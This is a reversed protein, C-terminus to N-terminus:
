VSWYGEKEQHGEREKLLSPISLLLSCASLAKGDVQPPRQQRDTTFSQGKQATDELWVAGRSLSRWHSTVKSESCCLPFPVRHTGLFESCMPVTHISISARNRAFEPKSGKSNLLPSLFLLRAELWAWKESDM